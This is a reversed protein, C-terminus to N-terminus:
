ISELERRMNNIEDKDKVITGKEIRLPRTKDGRFSLWNYSTVVMFKEDCIIIKAHNGKTEKIALNPYRKKTKQFYKDSEEDIDNKQKGSFGYIIRVKVDRKLAKELNKKFDADIVEKTIWPSNIITQFTAEKLAKKFILPHSYTDIVTGHPLKDIDNITEIKKRSPISKEPSVTENRPKQFPIVRKGKDEQENVFETIGYNIQLDDELILVKDDQGRDRFFLVWIKKNRKWVQNLIETIEVLEKKKKTKKSESIFFKVGDFLAKYLTIDEKETYFSELNENRPYKIQPKIKEPEKDQSNLINGRRVKGTVGDIFIYFEEFSCESKELTQLTNKGEETLHFKPNKRLLGQFHLNAFIDDFIIEDLGIFDRLTEIDKIGGAVAKLIYQDALPLPISNRVICKLEVRYYPYLFPKITLLEYSKGYYESIEPKSLIEQEIRNM